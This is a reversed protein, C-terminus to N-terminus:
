MREPCEPCSKNKESKKLYRYCAKKVSDETNNGKLKNAIYNWSKMDIFRYSLILRMRCDDVSRIFKELREKEENYERLERILKEEADIILPVIEETLNKPSSNRPMDDVTVGGPELRARLDALRDIDRQILKGIDHLKNLEELTM